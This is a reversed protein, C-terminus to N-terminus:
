RERVAIKISRDDKKGNSLEVHNTLVYDQGDEGASLVVTTTTDTKAEAGKVIGAPVPDRWISTVITVGAPLWGKGAWDIGYDQIADPDKLFTNERQFITM